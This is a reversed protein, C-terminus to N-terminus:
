AAATASTPPTCGSSSISGTASAALRSKMRGLAVGGFAIASALPLTLMRWSTRVPSTTSSSHATSTLPAISSSAARSHDFATGPHRLGSHRRFNTAAVETASTYAAPLPREEYHGSCLPETIQEPYRRRGTASERQSGDKGAIQALHLPK